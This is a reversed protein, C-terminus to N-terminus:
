KLEGVAHLYDYRSMVINAEADLEALRARAAEADTSLLESLPLLGAKYRAEGLRLAEEAAARGARMAQARGAALNMRSAAEQREVEIRRALEEAVAEEERARASSARWDQIRRGGDWLPLDVRVGATWRRQAPGSSADRYWDIQLASNISPLLRLGMRRSDLRLAAATETAARLEGRRSTSAFPATWPSQSPDVLDAAAVPEGVLSSLTLLAIERGSGGTLWEAYAQSRRSFTRLTDLESVQGTHFLLGAARRHEEAAALALSDAALAQSAKWAAVYGRVAQLLRGSIEAEGAADAARRRHGAIAPGMVEGGGNFIPQEVSVGYHLSTAEPPQNLARLDFDAQIFRGQWLKQSFLFAPDDSRDLAAQLRVRPSLSQIGLGADARAADARARAALVGPEASRVQDLARELSLPAASVTGSLAAFLVTVAAIDALIMRSLFKRTAPFPPNMTM